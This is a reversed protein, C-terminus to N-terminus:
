DHEYYNDVDYLKSNKYLEKLESIKEKIKGNLINHREEAISFHDSRDNYDDKIYCMNDIMNYYARGEHHTELCKYYHLLAQQKEYSSSLQEKGEEGLYNELYEEIRSTFENKKKDKEKENKKYKEEYQEYLRIWFTLNKHMSGMFSHSFLYTEGITKSLRIIEKFCFITEAILRELVEIKKEKNVNFIEEITKNCCEEDLIFKIENLEKGNNKNEDKSWLTTRKDDYVNNYVLIRYTEYNVTAKLWLQYIRTLISYNIGYPSTVYLDYCKKLEEPTKCKKLELDKVLILIRHIESDILIYQLPIHETIKPKGFDKKRKKIESMNLAENAHWLYRIATKSLRQIYIDDYIKYYKFLRLMKFIQYAARKYLNSKVYAKLSITYMAFATEMKSFTYKPDFADLLNQRYKKESEVYDICKKLTPVLKNTYEIKCDTVDCIYCACRHCTRRTNCDKADCIYCEYRDKENKESEEDKTDKNDCSFFVNGWDSLIRALITCYKVNYNNYIQEVSASLLQTVTNKDSVDLLISLAKHYYYCATCSYIKTNESGDDSKNKDEDSDEKRNKNKKSKLDANKYYLIDALRSYFEAELLKAERHDIIYTLFTFEKELQKLHNPTIGGVHSKELIQLKAIFPLYFMRLGEYTMKKFLMDNTNPSINKFDLPRPSAISTDVKIGHSTTPIEINDYYKREEREVKGVTSTKVFVIKGNDEIAERLAIGASLEKIAIDRERVIRKCIESYTLYAFDYQKRKEYIMGLRLMNRVYLYHQELTMAEDEKNKRNKKDDKKPPKLNSLVQVVNKYYVGAEELEDDYYHLDGLVVQLSSIANIFKPSNKDNQYEKQIRELKDQYHKKLSLTEDLSFSFLASFVNDTKTMAFIENAILDDFKYDSFSFNPRNIHIQALYNLLEVAVSKLVPSRNVELMEPSIDLHRWSFPHKHFKFLFDIFRLSSVLLKDSHEKINSESLHNFIPTMLYAIIGLTFQRYYNFTLFFRSKDYQQVILFRDDEKKDIERVEVFSEFLQMKKKPAGKGVHALYIIFQQLVAIIKQIKQETEKNLEYSIKREIEKNLEVIIRRIEREIGEDQLAIIEQEIKENPKDIAKQIKSVIKKNQHAIIKKMIEKKHKIIIERIPEIGNSQLAILGREVEENNQEIIIKHVKREIRKIKVDNYIKKELYIRYSKLNYSEPEVWYDHPILRRCVFEEILSTIDERNGDSHDTLFSPVYIVANFISGIYNNRESVDALYIDYMERGAIFIFKAKVTSLFYKMNSLIRLIETQRERTADISFLSAKTKQNENESKSESPEVKDLEDFVIVINPRCMFIPVRRVDELIDQLEKEIERADAVSRLKKTKTGIVTGIRAGFSQSNINVSKELETSYTIDSNLKKLQQKIIRNTVFFHTIWNCRFLLVCLLYMLFFSLWFLYNVPPIFEKDFDIEKGKCLFFQPIKKVRKSIEFVLQDLVLLFTEAKNFSRNHNTFADELREKNKKIGLFDNVKLYISDKKTYVSDDIKSYISKKMTYVSDNVKLYISDKKTYVSDNVKLYTSDIKIYISDNLHIQSSAQYLLSEKIPKYFEQKEVIASFLYAFLLLFGFAMVRWPLMRKFSSHYKHYETSLTRAILRLIDKEDKLKHGFNIRLYLRNYNKIYNKIETFIVLGTEYFIVQLALLFSKLIWIFIKTSGKKYEQSFEHSKSFVFQLWRIFFVICLYYFFVMTPTMKGKEIFEIFPFSTSFTIRPFIQTLSVVLIIKLIYQTSKYPNYPSILFFLEKFATKLFNWIEKVINWIKWIIKKQKPIKRRYCSFWYLMVFSSLICFLLLVNWPSTSIHFKQLFEQLFNQLWFPTIEFRQLCFQTVVVSFLLGLLYKLNKFFDSNLQLSTETIVRSVLSTKGVGRNGTVLYVGTEDTTAEVIKKLKDKIKKRGLFAHSSEGSSSHSFNYHPLEIRVKKIRSDLINELEVM